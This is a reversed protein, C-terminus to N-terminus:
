VKGSSTGIALHEEAGSWKAFTALRTIAPCLLTPETEPGSGPSGVPIVDWVYRPTLVHAPTPCPQIVDWAYRLPPLPPRTRQSSMGRTSPPAPPALTHTPPQFLDPTATIGGWAYGPPPELRRPSTPTPRLPLPTLTNTPNSLTAAIQQSSMVWTDRHLSQPQNLRASARRASELRIPPPEATGRGAPPRARRTLM